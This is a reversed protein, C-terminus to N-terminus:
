SQVRAIERSLAVAKSWGAATAAFIVVPLGTALDILAPYNKHLRLMTTETTLPAM